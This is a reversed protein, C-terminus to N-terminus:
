DSAAEFPFSVQRQPCAAGTYESEQAAFSRYRSLAEASEVTLSQLM